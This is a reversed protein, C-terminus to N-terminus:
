DTYGWESVPINPYVYELLTQVNCDSGWLEDGELKRNSKCMLIQIGWSPPMEVGKKNVYPEKYLHRLQIGYGYEHDNWGQREYSKGDWERKSQNPNQPDPVPAGTVPDYFTEYQKKVKNTMLVVKGSSVARAIYSRRAANLSTRQIQPIQTTRGFEAMMQCEFGDSDGDIVVTRVDANGLAKMYFHMYFNAWITQSLAQPTATAMAMEIPVIRFDERRTPPPEPNDLCPQEQRDLALVLIPGPASLAFETKGTNARGETGILIGRFRKAVPPGFDRAFSAPLTM